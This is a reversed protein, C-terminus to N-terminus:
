NVHEKPACLQSPTSSIQIWFRLFCLTIALFKPKLILFIQLSRLFKQFIQNIKKGKKNARM